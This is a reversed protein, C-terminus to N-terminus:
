QVSLLNRQMIKIRSLPHARPAPAMRELFDVTTTMRAFKECLNYFEPFIYRDYANKM